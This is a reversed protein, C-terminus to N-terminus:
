GLAISVVIEVLIGVTIGLTIGATIVWTISKDSIGGSHARSHHWRNGVTVQRIRTAPPSPVM